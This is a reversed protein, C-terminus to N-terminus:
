PTSENSSAADPLSTETLELITFPYQLGNGATNTAGRTERTRPSPTETEAVQEDDTLAMPPPLIAQGPQAVLASLKTQAAGQRAVVHVWLCRIEAGLNRGDAGGVQQRAEDMSKLFPPANGTAQSKVLYDGLSSVQQPDWGSAALVAPLASNVNSAEFDYLSVNNVFAYWLPTGRGETDYFFERAVAIDALEDFSRLSRQPPLHSLEDQLYITASTATEAAVHEKRMWVMMGDAVRDADGPSLGFETLLQVLTDLNMNPLSLKASEDEFTIEFTVGERPVFNAYTLPDAWGQSPAYLARDVARFDELVALTTELASRADLRLRDRDAVRMAIVMDTSSLEIMRALMMSAFMIIILVVVVVSGRQRGRQENRQHLGGEPRASADCSGSARGSTPSWRQVTSFFHNM